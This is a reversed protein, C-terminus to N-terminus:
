RDLLEGLPIPKLPPRVSLLNARETPRSSRKTIFNELSSGCMRGQCRGMGLRTLAKIEAPTHAGDEMASEIAEQTVEECRCIVTTRDALEFLGAKIPYMADMITRFHALRRLRRSVPAHLRSYNEETLKGLRFAVTIGASEGEALAVASGAVGAGDGVCFVGPVTTQFQSDRMPVWAALQKDYAIECGYLRPVEISSLFGYGVILADVDFRETRGAIPRCEDDCRMIEVSEVADAGIARRVIRGNLIPIGARRIESMYRLGQSLFEWHRLLRLGDRWTGKMSAAECLAVVQAGNRMLYHVVVLLLPGTGAVLVRHGPVVGFSKMLNQAGGATVVGPLTWGPFPIPRDFAGTAIVSYQPQIRLGLGAGAVAVVNREFVGWGVSNLQVDVGLSALDAIFARAEPPMDRYFQGGLRANEDVLMVRVGHRAAARAAALGAPGGGVVLMEVRTAM